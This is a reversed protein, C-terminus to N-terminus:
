SRCSSPSSLSRSRRIASSSRSSARRSRSRSRSSSRRLRSSSRSCPALRAALELVLERAVLPLELLLQGFLTRRDGRFALTEAGLGVGELRARRAAASRAPEFGVGGVARAPAGRARRACRPAQGLLCALEVRATGLEGVLRGLDLAGLLVDQAAALQPLELGLEVPAGDLQLLEGGVADAAAVEVRQRLFELAALLSARRLALLVDRRFLLLELALALADLLARVRRFARSASRSSGRRPPRRARPPARRCPTRLDGGVAGLDLDVELELGVPEVLQLLVQLGALGAQALLFALELGEDGAGLALEALAFGRESDDVRLLEFIGARMVRAIPVFTPSSPEGDAAGRWSPRPSALRLRRCPGTRGASRSLVSSLPRAGPGRLSESGRRPPEHPFGTRGWPRGMLHNSPTAAGGALSM